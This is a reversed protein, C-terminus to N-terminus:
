MELSSNLSEAPCKDANEMNCTYQTSHDSLHVEGRLLATSYLLLINQGRYNWYDM